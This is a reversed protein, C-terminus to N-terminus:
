LNYVRVSLLCEYMHAGLVKPGWSVGDETPTSVLAREEPCAAGLALMALFSGVVHTNVKEALAASSISALVAVRDPGPAVDFMLGYKKVNYTRVDCLGYFGKVLFM